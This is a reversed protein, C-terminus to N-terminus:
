LFCSSLYSSVLFIQRRVEVDGLGVVYCDDIDKNSLIIKEVNVTNVLTDGIHINYVNLKGWLSYKGHSFEVLDSTYFWEEDKEGGLKMRLEGRVPDLNDGNDNNSQILSEHTWALVDHYSKTHDRFKVLQTERSELGSGSETATFTDLITHGAM